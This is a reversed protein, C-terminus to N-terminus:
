KLKRAKIRKGKIKGDRFQGLARKVSRVKVAVLAHDARVMIKGIDEGPIGAEQTLAGLIDGPRLKQKKGANLLLANYEPQVIRNRHFRLSQAGKKPLDQGRAIELRALAPMDEDSVLSVALGSAGARATRGIRHTHTDTDESLSYNVVCEVDDIDLGRAAVDTAVLVPLAKLAFQAIVQNRERQEMDGQLGAATFGEAQLYAVVDAVQKRTNCFVITSAPQYHTLVAKLAQERVHPLVTYVKEDIDPAATAVEVKVYEPKQQYRGAIALLPAPFTASFFLTQASRPTASLIMDVDEAFGMDLMRDAEDLVRVTVDSLSLRRKELHALVRGPTGVVIHCGHRLSKIDPGMPTGGCLMLVKVNPIQSAAMRCQDAVQAALERTPCLIVAQPTLRTPDLRQLIPLVFCLTKGSGTQAQGQIDRGELALPLSAQQIPSLQLINHAALADAIEPRLALSSFETM